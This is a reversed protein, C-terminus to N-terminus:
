ETGVSLSPSIPAPLLLLLELTPGVYPPGKSQGERTGHLGPSPTRRRVEVPALRIQSCAKSREEQCATRTVNNTHLVTVTQDM